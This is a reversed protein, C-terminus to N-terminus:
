SLQEKRKQIIGELVDLLELTLEKGRAKTGRAHSTLPAAWGAREPDPMLEIMEDILETHHESELAQFLLTEIMWGPELQPETKGYLRKKAENAAGGIETLLMAIIGQRLPEYTSMGHMMGVLNNLPEPVDERNISDVAAITEDTLEGNLLAVIAAGLIHTQDENLKTVM